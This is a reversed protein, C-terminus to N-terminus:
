SRVIELKRGSAEDSREDPALLDELFYAGLESRNALGSKRYVAAAQQRVTAGESGRLHAIERQTLGKLMLLAIEAESGSLKWIEFQDRIARGLGDIHVRAAARWRDSEARVRSLDNLLDTRERRMGRAETAAYVGAAVALAFLAKEAMDLSFAALEFPEDGRMAEVFLLFGFLLVAMVSFLSIRKMTVEGNQRPGSWRAAQRALNVM